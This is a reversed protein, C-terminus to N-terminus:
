ISDNRLIEVSKTLIDTYSYAARRQVNTMENNFNVIFINSYANEIIGENVFSKKKTQNTRLKIRQGISFEIDKRVQSFDNKEIM